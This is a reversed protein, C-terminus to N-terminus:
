RTRKKTNRTQEHAAEIAFLLELAESETKIPPMRVAARIPVSSIFSDVRCGEGSYTFSLESIVGARAYERFRRESEGSIERPKLMPDDPRKVDGAVPAVQRLMMMAEEVDRLLAREALYRTVTLRLYKAAEKWKAQPAYPAGGRAWSRGANSM